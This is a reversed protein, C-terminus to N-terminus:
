IAFKNWVMWLGSRSMRPTRGQQLWAAIAPREVDLWIIPEQRSKRQTEPANNKAAEGRVCHPLGGVAAEM